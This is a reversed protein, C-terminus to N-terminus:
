RTSAAVVGGCVCVCVCVCVFVEQIPEVWPLAGPTKSEIKCCEIVWEIGSVRPSLHKEKQVPCRKPLEAVLLAMQNDGYTICRPVIKNYECKGGFFIGVVDARGGKLWLGTTPGRRNDRKGPGAVGFCCTSKARATDRARGRGGGEGGGEEVGLGASAQPPPWPAMGRVCVFCIPQPRALPKPDHPPPKLVTVAATPTTPVTKLQPGPGGAVAKPVHRGRCM